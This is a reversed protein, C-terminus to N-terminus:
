TQWEQSPLIAESRPPARLQHGSSSATGAQPQVGSTSAVPTPNPILGATAGPARDGADVMPAVRQDRHVVDNFAIAAHIAPRVRRLSRLYSIHASSPALPPGSHDSTTPRHSLAAPPPRSSMGKNGVSSSSLATYSTPLLAAPPPCSSTGKNGVSSRSFAMYSTDVLKQPSRM